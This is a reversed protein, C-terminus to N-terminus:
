RRQVPRMQPVFQETIKNAVIALPYNTPDLLYQQITGEVLSYLLLADIEPETSGNTTLESIFLDRLRKTWLRFSDGLVSMIAPQNRLMYFLGWFEKDGELTAFLVRLLSGLREDPQSQSYAQSFAENLIGICNDFVAHLLSGKSDFYHYMLGASIGAHDAIDNQAADVPVAGPDPHPVACRQLFRGPSLERFHLVLHPVPVVEIPQAAVVDHLLVDVVDVDAVPHQAAVRDAGLALAAPQHARALIVALDEVVVEDLELVLAAGAHEALAAVDGAAHVAHRLREVAGVARRRAGPQDDRAIAVRQELVVVGLIGVGVLDLV